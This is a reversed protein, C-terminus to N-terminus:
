TASRAKSRNLLRVLEFVLILIGFAIGMQLFPPNGPPNKDTSITGCGGLLGDESLGFLDGKMPYLFSIGDIDDQALRSRQDVIRYFMLAESKDTHGLGLAHGIEHAIVGIQDPVSLSKIPSAPDSNILVVAGKIKKGSFHNPVTVALVNAGGFNLNNDNCAIVIGDVSPILRKEPDVEANAATICDDDTPSCLRGHNMTLVPASFGGFSLNLNATPVKNWYKSLSLKVIRELEDSTFINNCATDSDVYVKVNNNDFSAVFNNNLTWAYSTSSIFLSLIIAHLKMM